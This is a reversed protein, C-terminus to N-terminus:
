SSIQKGYHFWKGGNLIEKVCFERTLVGLTIENQNIQPLICYLYNRSDKSDLTQTGKFDFLVPVSSQLWNSPFCKAPSSVHFVGRMNTRKFSSMSMQFRIFDRKLRTGDVIWIMPKYFGERKIREDSVIHSHQFEVVLEGNTCIDAIHKEGTLKDYKIIEQWQNPFRNKWNRHWETESEWWTDCNRMTKHAWHPEKVEGCKAIVESSCSPCIGKRGKIAITKINDVLAFKM